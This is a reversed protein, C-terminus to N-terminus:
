GGLPGPRRPRKARTVTTAKQETAVVTKEIRALRTQPKKASEIWEVYERQHTPSFREFTERLRLKELATALDVPVAAARPDPDAELAVTVTDGLEVSAAKRVAARKRPGLAVM